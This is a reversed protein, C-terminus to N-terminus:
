EEYPEFRAKSTRRENLAALEDRTYGNPGGAPITRRIFGYISARVARGTAVMQEDGEELVEDWLLFFVRRKELVPLGPHNWIKQLYGPMKVVAERLRDSRDERAMESRAEFTEELVRRKEAIYPDAGISRMLADSWDFRGAWPAFSGRDKLVVTGDRNVRVNFGPRKAKFGGDRDPKFMPGLPGEGKGPVPPPPARVPGDGLAGPPLQTRPPPGDDGGSVQTDIPRPVVPTSRISGYRSPPSPRGPTASPEAASPAPRTDPRVAAIAKSRTKGPAPLPATEPSSPVAAPQVEPQV